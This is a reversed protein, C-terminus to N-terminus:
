LIKELTMKEWKRISYIWLEQVRGEEDPLQYLIFQIENNMNRIENAFNCSEILGGDICDGNEEHRRWMQSMERNQSEVESAKRPWM